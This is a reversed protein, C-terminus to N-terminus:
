CLELHEASFSKCDAPRTTGEKLYANTLAGGLDVNRVDEPISLPPELRQSGLQRRRRILDEVDLAVLEVHLEVAGVVEGVAQVEVAREAVGM